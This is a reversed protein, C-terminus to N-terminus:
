SLGSLDWGFSDSLDNKLLNVNNSCQFNYLKPCIEKESTILLSSHYSKVIVFNLEAEKLNEGWYRCIEIHSTESFCNLIFYNNM